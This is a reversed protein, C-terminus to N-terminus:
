KRFKKWMHPGVERAGRPPNKDYGCEVGLIHLLFQNSRRAKNRRIKIGVKRVTDDAKLLNLAMHRMMAVNEPAHNKRIRCHDEDFAVDLVWHLKNEIGWHSRVAHSFKKADAEVLSSIFFRQHISTENNICRTSEVMGISALGYWENKTELGDIDSSSWYKRTEIRGHDKEITEIYSFKVDVFNESQAQAFFSQVSAFLTPQNAKLSIVYEGGREVINKVIEKQAGMADITVICGEVNVTELLKPIATIENSDADTKIQGLVLQAATSWASVLHIGAVGAARDFSRRLTKGDIAIVEPMDNTAEITKSGSSLGKAWVSFCRSFAVPDLASFVRGFTDHSPIGNPLELFTKFWDLRENAFEVIDVWTDAGCIMGSIAITFIDNLSHMRTRSVRPDVIPEFHKLLAAM